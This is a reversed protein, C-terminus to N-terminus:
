PTLTVVYLDFRSAELYDAAFLLRKGDPHFALANITAAVNAQSTPTVIQWAPTEVTSSVVVDVTGRERFEGVIAVGLSDPGVVFDRVGFLADSGAGLAPTLPRNTNSSVHVYHLRRGLGQDNATVVYDDYGSGVLKIAHDDTLFDDFLVTEEGSQLDLTVV